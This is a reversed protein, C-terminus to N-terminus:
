FPSTADAGSSGETDNVGRWLATDESQAGWHSTRHERRRKNRAETDPLAPGWAIGGTLDGGSSRTRKKVAQSGGSAVGLTGAQSEALLDADEPFCRVIYRTRLQKVLIFQRISKEYRIKCAVDLITPDSENRAIVGEACNRSFFLSIATELRGCLADDVDSIRINFAFASSTIEEAPVPPVIRM